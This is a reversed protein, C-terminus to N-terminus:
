EVASIVEIAAQLLLPCMDGVRGSEENEQDREDRLKALCEIIEQRTIPYENLNRM